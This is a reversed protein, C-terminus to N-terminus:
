SVLVALPLGECGYRTLTDGADRVPDGTARHPNTSVLVRGVANIVTIEGTEGSLLPLLEGEVADLLVDMGHVGIFEGGVFVPYAVTITYEDSCLYDVHPGAIHPKGTSVPVRYWELESYDIHEKGINQAALELKSHRPGQWWSLHGSADSLLGIAAIFGAGYVTVGARDFLAQAYPLVIADLKARTLPGEARASAVDAALERTGEGLADVGRQFFATVTDVAAPADTAQLAKM